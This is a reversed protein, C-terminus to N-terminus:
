QDKGGGRLCFATWAAGALDITGFVILVPKVFGLLVFAIFAVFVFSRGAITARYFSTLGARAAELYYYGLVAALVGIVRFWVESTPPLGFPSLVLNPSAMAALGLLVLYVGFIRISVTARNM